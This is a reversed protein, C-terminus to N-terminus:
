RRRHHRKDPRDRRRDAKRDDAKACPSREPHGLRLRFCSQEAGQGRGTDAGYGKEGPALYKSYDHFCAIYAGAFSVMRSKGGRRGVIAYAEKFNPERYDSNRGTCKRYLEIEGDNM